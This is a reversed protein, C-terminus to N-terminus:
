NNLWIIDSTLEFHLCHESMLQRKNVNKGKGNKELKYKEETEKNTKEDHIIEESDTWKGTPIFHIPADDYALQKFDNSIVFLFVKSQFNKVTKFQHWNSLKEVAFHVHTWFHFSHRNVGM